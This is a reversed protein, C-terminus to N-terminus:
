YPVCVIIPVVTVVFSLQVVSADAVKSRPVSVFPPETVNPLEKLPDVLVDTSICLVDADFRVNGPGAELRM